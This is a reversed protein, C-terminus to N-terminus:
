FSATDVRWQARDVLDITANVESQGTPGGNRVLHDARLRDLFEVIQGALNAVDLSSGHVTMDLKVTLTHHHDFELSVLNDPAAPPPPPTPTQDM